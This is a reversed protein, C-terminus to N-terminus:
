VEFLETSMRRPMALPDLVVRIDLSYNFQEAEEKRSKAYEEAEALTSFGYTSRGIIVLHPVTM